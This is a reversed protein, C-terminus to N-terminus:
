CKTLKISMIFDFLFIAIFTESLEAGQLLIFNTHKSHIVKIRKKNFKCM